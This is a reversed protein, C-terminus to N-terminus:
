TKSYESNNVKLFGACRPWDVAPRVSPQGIEKENNSRVKVQQTIIM